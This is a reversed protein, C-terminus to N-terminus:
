SPADDDVCLFITKNFNEFTVLDLNGAEDLPVITISPFNDVEFVDLFLPVGYRIPQGGTYLEGNKYLAATFFGGRMNYNIFLTYLGSDDLAINFTYPIMGKNIPIKDRM